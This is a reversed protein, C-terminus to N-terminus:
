GAARQAQEHIQIDVASDEARVEYRHEPLGYVNVSQHSTSFINDGIYTAKGFVQAELEWSAFETSAGTGKALSEVRKVLKLNGIGETEDDPMVIFLYDRARSIAVNIINRKNLFMGKSASISPPTNFVAFIIDCEDGQFGHITDAQVQVGKPLKASALLKDILDAQARYPAIVGIKFSSEPNHGAIERALHLVYEYTFLASYVHYPSGQLRKARYIGEYISAPFKIINLAKIDGGINLPRQSATTRNHRLIGNYAFQSFVAGIEPISRYQTELREVNYHHPVTQPSKFSDETNLGVMTYVNEDKWLSVATIPEIQFPDGAIIFKQPKQKYLPYIINAIPIMSAEDIVIYDWEINRLYPKGNSQTFGDYAFRAVTTVVVSRRQALIDFARDKHVSALGSKEDPTTGFRVLWQRYSDADGAVEMVRHALVDAAKNTPALVLVKCDAGNQMLPLLVNKALYTTKGTGPPGFVFEMNECLNARMDLGDDLGLAEFQERLAKLLFAPSKVNITAECVASFDIADIGSASKLKAHLKYSSKVSAAEVILKKEEGDAMHLVLPFYDLEEVTHPISRNPYELVLTRQQADPDRGVKAFRISIEKSGSQEESNLCEMDLLAMFWAFSYKDAAQARKQLESLRASRLVSAARKNEERRIRQEYDVARPTYEDQDADEDDGTEEVSATAGGSTKPTEMVRHTVRTIASTESDALERRPRKAASPATGGTGADEALAGGDVAAAQVIKDLKAGDHWDEERETGGSTQGEKRAQAVAQRRVEQQQKHKKYALFEEWEGDPISKGREIWKREEETLRETESYEYQVDLFKMLIRAAESGTDYGEALTTKTLKVPSLLEGERNFLWLLRLLCRADSSHYRKQHHGKYSWTHTRGLWNSPEGKELIFDLLKKWLLRSKRNDGTAAIYEVIEKCGDIAGEAWRHRGHGKNERFKHRELEAREEEDPSQSESRPIGREEWYDALIDERALEESLEVEDRIIVEIHVGLKELFDRLQEEKGKCVDMKKYEEFAIFRTGPKTEFWELLEPTPLYLESAAARYAQPDGEDYYTLFEYEKIQAVLNDVEERSDECYHKFFLEFHHDTDVEEGDKYQPLIINHIYDRLSPEKVGIHYIFERTKDNELLSSHVFNYGDENEGFEEPRLFLTPLEKEDFAAVAKKDQNLFFPRKPAAKRGADTERLWAYFEHLWSFSQKEIFQATIGKIGVRTRWVWNFDRYAESRGEIISGADLHAKVLSEIYECLKKDGRQIEERGFSTFVWHAEENDCIESLQKDSFLKALNQANAWYANGATTYGDRTPIIEEQEFLERISNYFPLFSIRSRDNIDSFEGRDYPIIDVIDDDILRQSKEEGIEKLYFIADAALEALCAVMSRNHPDSARIGERSDTLRFPAHIIFNLGTNERTPFFCFAPIDHEPPCLRRKEDLFFGVSCKCKHGDESESERSFLWLRVKKNEEGDSQTLCVLEATVDDFQRRREVRKGYMGITGEFEFEVRKLHSLFLLPFSLNLLKESINEYADATNREPHDFPFVFLTDNPNRGPFDEELLVPVLFREMKFRFDRDYIHPERTYQFVAKFGVGFKGIKHTEDEKSSNGISTIANIDGPAEEREKAPDTLTFHRSGNHFFVLRSQELTFRASTAQADDANQLLEYVFHAQDSYKDVVSKKVGSAAPDDLADALKIRRKQLAEFWIKEQENM